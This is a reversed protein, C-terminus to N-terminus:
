NREIGGAAIVATWKAIDSAVRSRLKDPSSPTPENGLARIRDAVAAETLVAAVEANLRQVIPQPLGVPGGLGVWGAVDFAPFEAEAVTPTDPLTPSRAATTVALIHITGAKMQELHVTPPDVILDIRKGLLDTLAPGGGRYPVHQFKVNASQGLLEMLLHPVSGTGATGYLLPQSAARAASLLDPVKRVKHDAYTALVYPFETVLSIMAFDDVPRFSLSKQMAAAAAYTASFLSVTYGDPSARALQAAALTSGAGPKSEVLVAQGLRRSLGDALIRATADVGGGPAFGHTLTIPRAPWSSQAKGQTPVAALAVASVVSAVIRLLFIGM